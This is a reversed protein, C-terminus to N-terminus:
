EAVDVQVAQLISKTKDDQVFAIVRLHSLSLPRDAQPFPRKTAAFNNLYGTLQARLEILNVEAKIVPAAGQVPMGGVGGPMARVVQHHFRLKNNGIFRINEEVLVFRLKLDASASELDNVQASIQIQDGVRKASATLKCSAPTDLLPGIVERYALYKAQANAMGGGGGAKEVGNFYTSPTGRPKYYTARKETDANTMPDPGPIHLHYQILVVEGHHYTRELAEFALDAAVCPPCQAGTFLEMVVVRSSKDKRGAFPTVQVLESELKDLRTDVAKLDSKMNASALALSLIQLAKIQTIVPTHADICQEAKRAYQVALAAHGRKDLAAAIQGNVEMEWGPGFEAASKSAIEAWQKIEAETAMFQPQQLLAVAARGGAFTGRYKDLIERYLKPLEDMALKDADAAEKLFKQQEEPNGKAKQAQLRLNAVKSTLAIVKDLPAIGFKHNLSAADLETLMTPVMYAASINGAQDYTGVIKKGDKGSVTGEFVIEITQFKFVARVHNGKVDFSVLKPDKFFAPAALLKAQTKDNQTEVKVLWITQEASGNFSYTTVQWNGSALGDAKAPAPWGLVLGLLALGLARKM